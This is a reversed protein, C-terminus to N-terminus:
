KFSSPAGIEERVQTQEALAFSYCSKAYLVWMFHRWLYGRSHMTMDVPMISYHIATPACTYLVTAVQKIHM